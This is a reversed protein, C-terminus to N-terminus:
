ESVLLKDVIADIIKNKQADNLQFSVFVEDSNGNINIKIQTGGKKSKKAKDFVSSLVHKLADYTASLSISQMLITITGVHALRQILAILAAPINPIAGIVYSANNIVLIEEKEYRENIDRIDEKSLYLGEILISKTMGTSMREM